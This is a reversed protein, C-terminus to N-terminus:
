ESSLDNQPRQLDKQLVHEDGTRIRVSNLQRFPRGHVAAGLGHGAHCIAATTIAPYAAVGALVRGCVRLAAGGAGLASRVRLEGLVYRLVVVWARTGPRM